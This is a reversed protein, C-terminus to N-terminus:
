QEMKLYVSQPKSLDILQGLTMHSTVPLDLIGIWIKRIGSRVNIIVISCQVETCIVLFDMSFSSLLYIILLSWFFSVFFNAEIFFSCSTHKSPSTNM